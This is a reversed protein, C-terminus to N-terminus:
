KNKLKKVVIITLKTSVVKKNKRKKKIENELFQKKAPLTLPNCISNQSWANKM